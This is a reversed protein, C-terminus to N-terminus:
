CGVRKSPSRVWRRNLRSSFVSLVRGNETSPPLLQYNLVAEGLMKEIIPLAPDRKDILHDLSKM